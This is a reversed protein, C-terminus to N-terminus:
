CGADPPRDIDGGGDKPLLRWLSDTDVEQGKQAANHILNIVATKLGSFSFDYPSGEVKPHPLPYKAPDGKQAAKDVFVGGPYPYGM